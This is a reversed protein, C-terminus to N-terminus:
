MTNLVPNSVPVGLLALIIIAEVFRDQCGKVMMMLMMVMMVLMMVMMVLMMVVMVLMMVMMVM